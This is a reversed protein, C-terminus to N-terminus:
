LSGRQANLSNSLAGQNLQAESNQPLELTLSGAWLKSAPDLKVSAQVIQAQSRSRIQSVVQYFSEPSLGKIEIRVGTDQVNMKLAAGLPTLLEQLASQSQPLTLPAITKLARLESQASQLESWQTELKQARQLSNRHTNLPQSIAYFWVLALVIALTLLKVMAQEKTSLSLFWSNIWSSFWSNLPQLTKSRLPSLTKPQQSSNM